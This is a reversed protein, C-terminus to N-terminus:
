CPMSSQKLKKKLDGEHRDKVIHSRHHVSPEWLPWPRLCSSGVSGIFYNHRKITHKNQVM